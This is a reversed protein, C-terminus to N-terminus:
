LSFTKISTKPRLIREKRFVDFCSQIFPLIFNLLEGTIELVFTVNRQLLPLIMFDTIMKSTMYNEENM